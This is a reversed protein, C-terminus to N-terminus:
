ENEDPKNEDYEVIAYAKELKIIIDLFNADLVFSENLSNNLNEKGSVLLVDLRKKEMDTIDMKEFMDSVSEIFAIQSINTNQIKNGIERELKEITKQTGKVIKYLNKREIKLKNKIEFSKLINNGGAVLLVLVEKIRQKKRPDEDLLDGVLLSVHAFNICTYRAEEVQRGRIKLRRLLKTHEVKLLDDYFFLYEEEEEDCRIEVSMESCYHSVANFLLTVMDQHNDILNIEQYFDIVDLYEDAAEMLLTNLQTLKNYDNELKEIDSVDASVDSELSELLDNFLEVQSNQNSNELNTDMGDKIRAELKAYKRREEVLDEQLTFFMKKFISLNKLRDQLYIVEHHLKQDEDIQLEDFLSKEESM